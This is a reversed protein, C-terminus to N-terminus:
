RTTATYHPLGHAAKTAKRLMAEVRMQDITLTHLPLDYTIRNIGCAEVLRLLDRERLGTRRNSVRRIM